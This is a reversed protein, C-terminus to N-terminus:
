HLINEFNSQHHSLNPKKLVSVHLFLYNLRLETFQKLLFFLQSFSQFSPLHHTFIVSLHTFVLTLHPCSRSHLIGSYQEKITFWVISSTLLNWPVLNWSWKSFELALMYIGGSLLFGPQITISPHPFLLLEIEQKNM